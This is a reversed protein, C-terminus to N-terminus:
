VDPFWLLMVTPFVHTFLVYVVASVVALAIFIKVPVTGPMKNWLWSYM